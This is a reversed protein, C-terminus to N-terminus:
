YLRAIIDARNIEHAIADDVQDGPQIPPHGPVAYVPMDTVRAICIGALSIDNYNYYNYVPVHLAQIFTIGTHM